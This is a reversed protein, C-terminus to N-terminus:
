SLLNLAKAVEMRAKHTLHVWQAFRGASQAKDAAAFDRQAQQLLARAQAQPNKTQHQHGPHQQGPHGPHHGGQPQAQGTMDMIAHVLTDGIGVDGGYAVMVYRLANVAASDSQSRTVYVPEVYLIGGGVPVPVLNGYRPTANALKFSQTRHSIRGNSVLNQFAQGPGVTNTDAPQDVQMTGYAPSGADSNVHLFGVLSTKGRAVYTSTMSWTEQGDPGNLFMRIPAQYQDQDTVTPDFSVQWTSTQQYFSNPDTVHYRQYQYRQVKFLDEPYRLHPMLAQPIQSKDLVTGPFASRWAQLIPDSDWAYLTVKGTYADVTAKVSNRIYNIQDNPVPQTATTATLSDSTMASLSERQSQPYQDTTTYGDVIWLIRGNVVAPYVDGDLTLWPAVKQVRALPSRDYLVQSDPGVRNSLLFNADGFKIAYMLKNFFSGVPVGGNGTYTSRGTSGDPNLTVEQPPTGPPQGVISYAPSVPAFYLGQEFAGTSQQLSSQDPGLGQAWQVQPTQASNDSPRQNAFAAIVGSGHTYVTHLNSWNQASSPLGSTDLERAGIMV